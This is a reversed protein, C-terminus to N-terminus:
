RPITPRTRVSDLAALLVPVYADGSVVLDDHDLPVDFTTADPVLEAFVRQEEPSVNTDRTTVIVAFPTTLSGIWYRSDFRRADANAELIAELSGRSLEGVAWQAGEEDWRVRRSAYRWGRTPALSIMAKMGARYLRGGSKPWKARTAGLVLGRVLEPHQRALLLAVTGGLSYGHVLVPGTDLHQILAAADAACDVLRFPTSPRLGHGHGRMDLAIVRYGADELPGYVHRFNVDSSAAWGHLLLVTGARDGGPGSDRYFLQGAGVVEEVHGPPLRM